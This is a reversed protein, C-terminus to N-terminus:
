VTQTPLHISTGPPIEVFQHLESVGNLCTDKYEQRPNHPSISKFGTSKGDISINFGVCDGVTYKYDPLAECVIWFTAANEAEIYVTKTSSM